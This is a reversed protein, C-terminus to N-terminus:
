GQHSRAKPRTIGTTLAMFAGATADWIDDHPADPQSHMHRLWTENWAGNVYSVNGAEAQALFPKARTIKDARSPVGKADIGALLGTMRQAERISASGPEIEWRVAYVMGREAAYHADQQSLNIFAKEVM